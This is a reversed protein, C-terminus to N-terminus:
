NEKVFVSLRENRRNTYMSSMQEYSTFPGAEVAGMNNTYFGRAEAFLIDIIEEINALLLATMEGAIKKYDDLLGINAYREYYMDMVENYALSAASLGILKIDEFNMNIYLELTCLKKLIATFSNMSRDDMDVEYTPLSCKDINTYRYTSLCIFKIYEIPYHNRGRNNCDLMKRYLFPNEQSVKDNYMTNIRFILNRFLETGRNYFIISANNIAEGRGVIDSVTDEDTDLHALCGNNSIMKFIADNFDEATILEGTAPDVGKAMSFEPEIAKVTDINKKIRM